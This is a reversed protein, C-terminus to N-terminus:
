AAVLERSMREAALQASPLTCHEYFRRQDATARMRTREPRMSFAVGRVAALREANIGHKIIVRRLLVLSDAERAADECGMAELENCEAIFSAITALAWETAEGEQWPGPPIGPNEDSARETVYLAGRVGLFLEQGACSGGCWALGASECWLRMRRDLVEDKNVSRGLVCSATYVRADPVMWATVHPLNHEDRLSIMVQERQSPALDLRDTMAYPREDPVDPDVLAAYGLHM